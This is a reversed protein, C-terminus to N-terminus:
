NINKPSKKSTVKTNKTPQKLNGIKKRGGKVMIDDADILPLPYDTLFNGATKVAIMGRITSLSTGVMAEMVGGPLQFKDGDEVLINPLEGIRYRFEM